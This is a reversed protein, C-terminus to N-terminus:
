VNESIHKPGQYKDTIYKLQKMECAHFKQNKVHQENGTCIGLVVRGKNENSNLQHSLLCCNKKLNQEHATVDYM